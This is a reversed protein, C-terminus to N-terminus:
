SLLREPTRAPVVALLATLTHPLSPDVLLRQLRANVLTPVGHQRGLLVIEGNLFDIESSAGRAFSQWTSLRGPTHGPVPEVDFRVGHFDLGGSPPLRLGAADFVAVAESRLLTRARDRDEDAGALLDLGNAVNGLLKAAKMQRIDPVTWAAFGSSRLDGVVTEALEDIGTPYRGLWIGGVAPPLSPSVIEGLVLYSAAIAITAGYVQAYRRLAISETALGNQFTLIPLDAVLGGGTVPRTHWDLLAREADQAKTALVLLDDTTLTLEDPDLAVSLRVRDVSTPRRVVLGGDAILRGHEGRAVLIVRHGSGALQAALAGGVAGAGIVVYRRQRAGLGVEARVGPAGESLGSSM